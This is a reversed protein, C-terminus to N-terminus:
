SPVGHASVLIETIKRVLADPAFPKAIFQGHEITEALRRDGPDAYGSMYLVPGSYGLRRFQSVLDPGSMQPMIVDTVIIDPAGRSQEFIGIAEVPAIASLVQFGNQELIRCVLPGLVLDDDVVLVVRGRAPNPAPGGAPQVGAQREDLRGPLAEALPLQLTFTSGVGDISDLWIFGGSQKVFGYVTSLGLGTGKGQAKTTFFPEFIRAQLEKSMGTGNDSVEVCAYSGPKAGPRQAATQEDVTVACVRLGIRGGGELADRSNIVLNIVAQELQSADVHALVPTPSFEVDLEIDDRLLRRLLTRLEAILANLDVTRPALAQKRSFALLQRTLGAVRDNANMIAVVDARRPDVEPLQDLLLMCYGLVVTVMNNFDHAVGSALQGVAEMREAVRLRHELDREHTVDNKVAVFHTIGEGSAAVPTITMDEVYLSGDRRRNTLRGRWVRGDLITTWLDRYFAEDQQGSRLLRPNQGVIEDHAYGTSALFAPNAWEIRGSVDTVVISNAAATVATTALALAQEADREATVDHATGFMQLPTGSASRSFVRERSRFWRWDGSRHRMRFLNVITEDEGAALIRPLQVERFRAADEPHLLTEILSPGMARVEAPTYGLMQKIRPNMYINAMSTLDFLYVLDSSASLLQDTFEKSARLEEILELNRTDAAARRDRDEQHALASQIAPALRAFGVPGKVIYDTVGAKIADVAVQENGTGTVIIVPSFCGRGRVERLLDIGTTWRLWYDTLIVDYPADGLAKTWSAQDGVDTILASPFGRRVARIMLERDAPMDDVVLVRIEAPM